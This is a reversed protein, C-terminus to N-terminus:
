RHSQPNQRGASRDKGDGLHYLSQRMQMRGKDELDLGKFPQPDEQISTQEDALVILVDGIAPVIFAAKDKLEQLHPVFQQLQQYRAGSSLTRCVYKCYVHEAKLLAALDREGSDSKEESM